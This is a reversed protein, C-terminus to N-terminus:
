YMERLLVEVSFNEKDNKLFTHLTKLLLIQPIENLEDPGLSKYTCSRWYISRPNPFNGLKANKMGESGGRIMSFEFWSDVLSLLM